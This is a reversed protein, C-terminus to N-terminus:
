QLLFPNFNTDVDYADVQESKKLFASVKYTLPTCLVEVWVKFIYNSVIIIWLTHMDMVGYFAIMIMVVTDFLQGVLTSGITRMWLYKGQTAVKMKALVFSNVFEGVFYAIISGLFIRPTAMLITEYAAQQWREANAPLINILMIMGIMLLMSFLWIRIVKRSTKYGYVETLIDGFIYSLPFLLTGGDFTLPWVDIIKTSVIGSILLVAVFLGTITTLHRM